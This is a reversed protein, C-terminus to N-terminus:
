SSKPNKGNTLFVQIKTGKTHMKKVSKDGGYYIERKRGQVGKISTVERVWIAWM